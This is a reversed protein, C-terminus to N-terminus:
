LLGCVVCLDLKLAHTLLSIIPPASGESSVLYLLLPAVVGGLRGFFEAVGSGLTRFHFLFNGNEM